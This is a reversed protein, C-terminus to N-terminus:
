MSRYFYDQWLKLSQKHKSGLTTQPDQAADMDWPKTNGWYHIVSINKVYLVGGEYTFKFDFLSCYRDLYDAPVNYRQDLHLVPEVKWERYYANLFGQDTKDPSHVTSISRMMDNFLDQEPKIVMLGSNFDIWGRNEPLLNGAVVASMHPKDFLNEINDCVIMDADLYVLTNFEELGFLRIKGYMHKRGRVDQDLDYPNKIHEIRRTLIKKSELFGNVAGSVSEGVLVLLDTKNKHEKLSRHLAMVGSLFNDSGLYTVFATRM